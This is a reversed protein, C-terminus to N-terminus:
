GSAETDRERVRSPGGGGRRRCTATDSLPPVPHRSEACFRDGRCRIVSWAMSPPRGRSADYRSRSVKGSEGSPQNVTVISRREHRACLVSTAAKDKTVYALDDVILSTSSPWLARLRWTEGNRRFFRSQHLAGALWERHACPRLSFRSAKAAARRASSCFCTRERRWGATIATIAMVGAMSIM